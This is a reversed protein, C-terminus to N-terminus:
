NLIDDRLYPAHATLVGDVGLQLGHTFSHLLLHQSLVNPILVNMVCHVLDLGESLVVGLDELPEEVLQLVGELIFILRLPDSNLLKFFSFEVVFVEM